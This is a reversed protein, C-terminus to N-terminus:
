CRDSWQRRIVIEPKFAVWSTWRHAVADVEGAPFVRVTEEGGLAAM